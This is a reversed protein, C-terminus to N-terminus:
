KGSVRRVDPESRQLCEYLASRLAHQIKRLAPANNTMWKVSIAFREPLPTLSVWEENTHLEEIRNRVVEFRHSDPAVAILSGYYATSFRSRLFQMQQSSPDIRYRERLLPKSNLLVDTKWELRSYEFSEKSAVRGPALSEFYLVTGNTEIDILTSQRYVAGGQPIFIEPLVELFGGAEVRFKQSVAAWGERVRHARSASPTTLVLAGGSKVTVQQEIRDDQLLAATPNVVNLVLAGSDWHPKSLHIPARFSQETITPIGRSDPACVLRLHGRIGQGASSTEPPASPADANM